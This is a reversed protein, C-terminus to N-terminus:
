ANLSAIMKKECDINKTLFKLYKIIKIKNLNLLIKDNFKLTVNLKNLKNIENLKLILKNLLIYTELETEQDSKKKLFSSNYKCYIINSIEFKKYLNMLIQKNKKSKIGNKNIINLIKFTSSFTSINIHNQINKILTIKKFYNLRFKKFSIYFEKKHNFYFKYNKKLVKSIIKQYNM